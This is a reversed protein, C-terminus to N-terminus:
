GQGAVMLPRAAFCAVAEQVADVVFVAMPM